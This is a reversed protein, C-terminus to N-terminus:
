PEDDSDDELIEGAYNMVSPMHLGSTSLDDTTYRGVIRQHAQQAWLSTSQVSSTRPLPSAVNIVAGGLSSSSSSSSEPFFFESEIRADSSPTDVAFATITSTPSASPFEKNKAQKHLLASVTSNGKNTESKHKQLTILDRSIELLRRKMDQVEEVAGVDEVLSITARLEHMEDKFAKIAVEVPGGEYKKHVHHYIKQEAKEENNEKAKIPIDTATATGKTKAAALREARRVTKSNVIMSHQQESEPPVLCDLTMKKSPFFLQAPYSCLLFSLWADPLYARDGLREWDEMKKNRYAEISKAKELDSWEKWERRHNCTKFGQHQSYVKLLQKKMARLVASM